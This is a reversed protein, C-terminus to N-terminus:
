LLVVAERCIDTVAEYKQEYERAIAKERNRKLFFYLVGGLIWTAFGPVAFGICGLINGSTISFVSLAMCAAGLLGCITSGVYAAAMKTREMEELEDMANEFYGQLRNLKNKNELDKNRRLKLEVKESSDHGNVMNKFPGPLIALPALLMRLPGWVPKIKEPTNKVLEWGLKEYGEQWQFELKRRVTVTKYEYTINTKEM